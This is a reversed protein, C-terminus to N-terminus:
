KSMGAHSEANVTSGFGGDFNMCRMVFDVARPISILDLRGLLSLCNLACYSFRTDVEGWQDGCFSGDPQQLNAVVSFSSIVM